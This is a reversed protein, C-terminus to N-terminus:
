QDTVPEMSQELPAGSYDIVLAVRRNALASPNSEGSAGRVVQRDAAKGYSVSRVQAPNLGGNTTLYTRVAEARAKGLRLNYAASGAPDTFGEVTIVANPYYARVVAAFRDLVEQDVARVEAKAFDFHVPVDFSILEDFRQMKVNFDNRFAQLDRELASVRGDLQDIRNALAQDGAQMEDRLRAVEGEVFDKKVGCSAALLAVLAIGGGRVM